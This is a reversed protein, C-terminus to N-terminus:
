CQELLSNSAKMIEISKNIKTYNGIHYEVDPQYENSLMQLEILDLPFM